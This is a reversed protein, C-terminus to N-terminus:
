DSVRRLLNENNIRNNSFFDTNSASPISIAEAFLIVDISTMDCISARLEQLATKQEETHM